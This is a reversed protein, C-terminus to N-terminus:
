LTHYHLPPAHNTECAVCYPQQGVPAQPTVMDIPGHAFRRAVKAVETMADSPHQSIPPDIIDAMRRAWRALWRM